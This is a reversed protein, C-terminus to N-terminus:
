KAFRKRFRVLGILGSGFLWIAAPIPVQNGYSFNDIGVWGVNPTFQISTILGSDTTIGFFSYYPNDVIVSYVHDGSQDNVTVKITDDQRLNFIDVGVGSIGSNFTSLISNPPYNSVLAIGLGSYSGNTSVWLADYTSREPVDFTVNGLTLTGYLTGELSDFTETTINTVQNEWVSRESYTYLAAQAQVTIGVILSIVALGVLFKKKM